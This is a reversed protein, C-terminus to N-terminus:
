FKVEATGVVAWGNNDTDKTNHYQKAETVVVIKFDKKMSEYSANPSLAAKFALVDRITDSDDFASSYDVERSDGTEAAKGVGDLTDGEITLMYGTKTQGNITFSKLDGMDINKAPSDNAIDKAIDANSTSETYLYVPSETIDANEWYMYITNRTDASKNSTNEVTWKFTSIDGPNWNTMKDDYTTTITSEASVPITKSVLMKQEDDEGTWYYYSAPMSKGNIEAKINVQETASDPVFVYFQGNGTISTINNGNKDRFVTGSVDASLTVADKFTSKVDYPGILYGGDIKSNKVNDISMEFRETKKTEDNGASVLKVILNYLMQADDLYKQSRWTPHFRASDNLDMSFQELKMAKTDDQYIQDDDDFVFATGESIKLAVQTAWELQIDTLGPFDAQYDSAKKNPYGAALIRNAVESVSTAEDSVGSSPGMKGLDMCYAVEGDSTRFYSTEVMQEATTYRWRPSFGIGQEGWPGDFAPGDIALSNCYDYTSIFESDINKLVFANGVTINIPAIQVGGAKAEGSSKDSSSFIALVSTTIIAAAACLSVAAIAIKKNKKM